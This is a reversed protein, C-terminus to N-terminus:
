RYKDILRLLYTQQEIGYYYLTLVLCRGNNTNSHITGAYYLLINGMYSPLTCRCTSRKDLAERQAPFNIIGIKKKTKKLWKCYIEKPM